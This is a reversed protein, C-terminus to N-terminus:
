KHLAGSLVECGKQTVLVTDEIRIGFKRPLYIAPEVTFVMGAQLLKKEKPSIHPEEHVELGIGHGLNHGFFGGYGERAIYRRSAADIEAIEQAPRIKAIAKEQACLVIKYIKRALVDIKGLFFTRTLDSKYGLYSAGIDILVVDNDKIKREGPIHHPFSSNPGSAVIIDFASNTAGHYRIFRELDAALEIEKKGPRILKRIFKLAAITIQTAKRIKAIERPEKLERLSEVLSHMPKLSTKKSLYRQIKSYEAYPLHRAEFGVRSLGLEACAQALLKFVSYGKAEKLLFGKKLHEKAEQIYRSDTFYINGKESTLLYSDRSTFETLYSINSASSIILGNLKEEELKARINKLRPSM